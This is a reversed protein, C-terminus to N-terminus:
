SAMHYQFLETPVSARKVLTNGSYNQSLDGALRVTGDKMEYVVRDKYVNVKEVQEHDIQVKKPTAADATTGIGLQGLDNKGLGYIGNNTIIIAFYNGVKVDQVGTLGAIKTFTTTNGSTTGRGTLGHLNSGSSWLTGDTKIAFAVNYSTNTLTGNVNGGIVIEKVGSIMGPVQTYYTKQGTGNGSVGNPSMGSHWLRGNKDIVFSYGSGSYIKTAYSFNQGISSWRVWQSTGYAYNAYNYGGGNVYANKFSNHNPLRGTANYSNNSGSEMAFADFDLWNNYANGYNNIMTNVETLTNYTGNGRNYAVMYEADGSSYLKNQNTLVGLYHDFQVIKKVTGGGIGLAKPVTTNATGMSYGTNTGSAQLSGNKMVFLTSYNKETKTEATYDINDFMAKFTSNDLMVFNTRSTKSGDGFQGYTNDGSVWIQDHSDKVWMQRFGTVIKKADEANFIYNWEYRATTDGLNCQYNTSTGYTLVEGLGDNYIIHNDGFAIEAFEPAKVTKVTAGVASANGTMLIGGTNKGAVRFNGDGCMILTSNPRVIVDNTGSNTMTTCYTPTTRETTDGLMLEGNTNIGMSYFSGNSTELVSHTTTTYVRTVVGIQSNDLIFPTYQTTKNSTGLQGNANSGMVYVRGAETVFISHDGAAAIDVVNSIGPVPEPTSRPTSTDNLGLQGSTNLGCSYVIGSELLIIAHNTGLAVKKVPASLGIVKTPTSKNTKNGIGLQGNTNDGSAYVEGDGTVFYTFNGTLSPVIERVYEIDVKAAQTATTTTGIGLQGKTNLGVAYVSETQDVFFTTDKGAALTQKVTEVVQINTTCTVTNDVWTYKLTVTKQGETLSEGDIAVVKDTVEEVSGDAYHAKVVMGTPDFTGGIRYKIKTPPTTVEISEVQAKVTIPVEVSRSISNHTYMLAIKTDDKTLKTSPYETPDVVQEVGDKFFARLKAGTPDFIDGVKYEVKNPPTELEVRDLAGGMHIKYLCNLITGNSCEYKIIILQNDMNITTNSFELEELDLVVPELGIEDPYIGQVVMGTPDFEQGEYWVTIDPDKVVKISEFDMIPKAKVEINFTTTKELGAETYSVTIERTGPNTLGQHNSLIYNSVTKNTDNTYFATVELGTNDFTDGVWYVTKNPLHTVEIRSLQIEGSVGAEGAYVQFSTTKTVGDNLYVVTVTTWGKPLSLHNQLTISSTVDLETGDNFQAIVRLGSTDVNDGIRYDVTKNPLKDIYISSLVKSVQISVSASKRVGNYEYYINVKTTGSQLNYGDHTIMSTVDATSNDSFIATVILGTTDFNQGVKYILNFSGGISISQLTKETGGGQEDSTVTIGNLSVSKTSGNYSYSFIVSTQGLVLNSNYTCQNTVTENSGDSFTARIQLGSINLSEGVKYNMKSPYSVISLSSLVKDAPQQGGNETVSIGTLTVTKSVGGYSYTFVISTQGLTLTPNYSCSGTVSQSTGDSYFATINMGAINFSEGLKYSMKTPTSSIGLGTLTKTPNGSGGGGSGGGDGPDISGEKVTITYSTTLATNENFTVTVTHTGVTMSPTQVTYNTSTRSSGDAQLVKIKLGSYTFADGLKFNTKPLEAIQIGIPTKDGPVLSSDGNTFDVIETTIAGNSVRVVLKSGSATSFDESGSSTENNLGKISIFELTGSGEDSGNKTLAVRYNYGYPNEKECINDTFYLTKDLYENLYQNFNGDDLKKFSKENIASEAATQFARFDTKVGTEKAKDTAFGFRPILVIFLIAIISVVLMIEVLTFGKKDQKNLIKNIFRGM